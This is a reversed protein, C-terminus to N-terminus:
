GALEKKAMIKVAYIEDNNELLPLKTAKYVSGFSGSEIKDM